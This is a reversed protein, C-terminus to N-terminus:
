LEEFPLLEHLTKKFARTAEAKTYGFYSKQIRYGNTITSLVLAGNRKYECFIPPFHNKALRNRRNVRNLTADAHRKLFESNM